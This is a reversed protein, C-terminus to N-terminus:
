DGTIEWHSESNAPRPWLKINEQLCVAQLNLSRTLNMRVPFPVYVWPTTALVNWDDDAVNSSFTVLMDTKTKSMTVHAKPHYTGWLKTKKVYDPYDWAKFFTWPGQPADATGIYMDTSGFTIRWSVWKQLYDNWDLTTESPMDYLPILNDPRCDNSWAPIGYAYAWCVRADYRQNKIDDVTYRSMVAKESWPGNGSRGGLVYVYGDRQTIARNWAVRDYVTHSMTDRWSLPYDYPNDIHHWGYHTQSLGGAVTMCVVILKGDILVAGACWDTHDEDVSRFIGPNKGDKTYSFHIRDTPQGDKIYTKGVSNRVFGSRYRVNNNVTGLWSDQWAFLVNGFGMDVSFTGDAGIWNESTPRQEFFNTQLNNEVTGSVKLQYAAALALIFLVILRRKM